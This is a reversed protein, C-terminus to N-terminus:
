EKEQKGPVHDMGQNQVLLLPSECTAKNALAPNDKKKITMNANMPGATSHGQGRSQTLPLNANNGCLENVEM